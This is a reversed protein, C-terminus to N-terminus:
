ANATDFIVGAGSPISDLIVLAQSYIGTGQGPGATFTAAGASPAVQQFESFGNAGGGFEGWTAGATFGTGATVSTDGNKAVVVAIMLGAKANSAPGNTVADTATGPNNQNVIADGDLSVAPVGGVEFAIISTFNPGPAPWTVTITEASLSTQNQKIWTEITIGGSGGSQTFNLNTFTDVGDVCSTAPADNTSNAVWPYVEITSGPTCPDSFTLSITAGPPEGLVTVTTSQLIVAGSM